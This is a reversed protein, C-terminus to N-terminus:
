KSVVSAVALLVPSPCAAPRDLEVKRISKPRAHGAHVAQHDFGNRNILRRGFSVDPCPSDHGSLLLLGDVQAIDHIPETM